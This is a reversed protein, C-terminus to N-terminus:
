VRELYNSSSGNWFDHGIFKEIYDREAVQSYKGFVINCGFRKMKKDFRAYVSGDWGGTFVEKRLEEVLGSYADDEALNKKEGPDSKLNFLEVKDYNSYYCFKWDDKRVMRECGGKRYSEAKVVNNWEPNDTELLPRLSNGAIEYQVDFGTWGCVTPFLDVLSVNQSIRKGADPKGPMRIVLPVRASGEYFCSKHWRGHEGILDGHDSFYVVITNELLGNKELSALLEGIQTDLFEVLGYYAAKAQKQTEGSIKPLDVSDIYDKHSPHLANFEDESIKEFDIKNYYKEFLEPPAIYPCHPTMYGVTMLFPREATEAAYNDFWLCTEQTVAKDFDLYHTNGPGCVTLPDPKSANGLDGKLPSFANPKNAWFTFPSIDGALREIFGHRQDPGKFHMRGSLVTHYGQLTATHAYTPINSSLSCGNHFADIQYPYQGTLFSMRSPVCLPNNCYASDFTVGERSLRDINPTDIIANGYAGSVFPNHQDSCILIINKM